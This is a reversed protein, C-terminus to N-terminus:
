AHILYIIAADELPASRVHTLLKEELDDLIALSNADGFNARLFISETVHVIRALSAISLESSYGQLQELILKLIKM